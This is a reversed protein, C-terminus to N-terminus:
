VACSAAQHQVVVLQALVLLSSESDQARPQVLWAGLPASLM